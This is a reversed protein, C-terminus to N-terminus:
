NALGFEFVYNTTLVSQSDISTGSKLTPEVGVNSNTRIVGMQKPVGLDSCWIQPIKIGNLWSPDSVYGFLGLSVYSMTDTKTLNLWDPISYPAVLTPKWASTPAVSISKLNMAVPAQSNNQINFTQAVMNGTDPNYTFSSTAPITVNITVADFTGTIETTGSVTDANAVITTPLMISAMAIISLIAKSLKNKIM